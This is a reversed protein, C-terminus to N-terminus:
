ARMGLWRGPGGGQAAALLLDALRAVLAESVRAAVQRAFDNGRQGRLEGPLTAVRRAAAAAEAIFQQVATGPRGEAEAVFPAVAAGNRDRKRVFNPARRRM